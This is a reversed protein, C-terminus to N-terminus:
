WGQCVGLPRGLFVQVDMNVAARMVYVPFLVLRVTWWSTFPYHLHPLYVCRSSFSCQPITLFLISRLLIIYFSVWVRSLLFWLSVRMHLDQSLHWTGASLELPQSVLSPAGGLPSSASLVRPVHFYFILKPHTSLELPILLPASPLVFLVLLFCIRNSFTMISSLTTIIFGFFRLYLFM